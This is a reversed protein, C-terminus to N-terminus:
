CYYRSYFVGNATTDVIFTLNRTKLQPKCEDIEKCELCIELPHKNPLIHKCMSCRNKCFRIKEM